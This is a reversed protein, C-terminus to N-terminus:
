GNIGEKLYRKITHLTSIELKFSVRCSTRCRTCDWTDGDKPQWNLIGSKGCITGMFGTSYRAVLKLPISWM